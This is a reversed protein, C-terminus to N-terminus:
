QEATNDDRRITNIMKDTIIIQKAYNLSMGRFSLVQVSFM